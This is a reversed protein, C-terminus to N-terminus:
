KGDKKTTEKISVKRIGKLEFHPILKQLQENDHLSVNNTTYM